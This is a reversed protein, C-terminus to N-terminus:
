VAKSCQDYKTVVQRMTKYLSAHEFCIAGGGRLRQSMMRNMDSFCVWPHGNNPNDAIAIKAHNWSVNFALGNGFDLDMINTDDWRYSASAKQPGSPNKVSAGQCSSPQCCFKDFIGCCWTHATLGSRLAPAVVDEYLDANLDGDKGAYVLKLGASSTLSATNSGNIYRFGTLAAFNPMKSAVSKPVNSDYVFPNFYRVILSAAEIQDIPLSVCFFHQAFFAQGYPFHFYEPAIPAAYPFGPASHSMFFGQRLPASFGVLGKAHGYNYGQTDNWHEIPKATDFTPFTADNWFAWGLNQERNSKSGGYLGLQKLTLAVANDTAYRFNSIYLSSLDQNRSDLYAATYGEYKGVIKPMKMIFFWDVPQGDRGICGFSAAALAHGFLGVLVLLSVSRLM